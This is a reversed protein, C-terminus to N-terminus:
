NIATCGLEQTHHHSCLQLMSLLCALLSFSGTGSLVFTILMHTMQRM